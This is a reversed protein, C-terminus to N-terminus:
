AAGVRYAGLGETAHKGVHVWQGLWLYPWLLPCDTMDLTFEGLIGSLNIDTSQRASWRADKSFSLRPDEVSMGQGLAKLQVFLSEDLDTDTHFTMLMSIRRVLSSFLHHAAFERPLLVARRTRGKQGSTGGSAEALQVLLQLPSQFCVKVRGPSPSTAAAIVENADLGADAPRLGISDGPTELPIREVGVLKARGGVGSSGTEGAHRFAAVFAPLADNGRGILTFQFGFKGGSSITAPAQRWDAVIVFPHPANPYNRMKSADVPPPTEFMYQYLEARPISGCDMGSPELGSAIAQLENGLVGRWFSGQCPPLIMNELAEFTVQYRALPLAPETLQRRSNQHQSM